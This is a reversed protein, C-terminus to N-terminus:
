NSNGTCDNCEGFLQLFHNQIKFGTKSSLNDLYEDFPCEEFDMIRNCTTCVMHHGHTDSSFAYSHCGDQFHVRNVLGLEVLVDLTRYITALGTNPLIKKTDDLIDNISLYKSSEHLVHLVALRQPTSKLGKNKLLEKASQEKACPFIAM